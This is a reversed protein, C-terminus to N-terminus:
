FDNIKYIEWDKFNEYFKYNTIIFKNVLNLNENNSGYQDVKSTYVIFTPKSYSIDQILQNQIVKPSATYMFYFKSCTPKKLLYSLGVENTFITVCKDQSVLNGYYSVFESYEESLYFRDEKKILNKISAFSNFINKIHKSEYKKEFNTVILFLVIFLLNLYNKAKLKNEFKKIILYFFISFLPLYAFSQAVRIHVSDSRSLGYKFFILSILFLFIISILFTSNKKNLDKLLYLITAGILLFLMLARTSRFNGSFPTPYILGQIYEITSIILFTNNLFAKFEDKPFLLFIFSWGVVFSFILLLLNKGELRLLLFIAFILLIINIYFGIDIFWFMGISSFLGLIFIIIKSGYSTFFNLLILLFLLLLFSRLIFIPEVYSTFFLFSISLLTFFIIKIHEKVDAIEVLKKAIMLLLIKNLFIAFIHFFRVSGLTESGFIKWIFYPHFNGFFGRGVYSSLWFEKNNKLNEAASLLLGEHFIDINHHYNNFDITFFEILIILIFLLFYKELEYNKQKTRRYNFNFLYNANYLIKKESFQFFIILTLLPISIFVLFRLSDNLAHYSNKLYDEGVIQKSENFPIRIFEWIFTSFIIASVFLVIPLIHKKM